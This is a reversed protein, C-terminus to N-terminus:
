QTLYGRLSQCLHKETFKAFNRVIGKKCFVHPLCSSRYPFLKNIITKLDDGQRNFPSQTHTYTHKYQLSRGVALHRHRVQPTRILSTINHTNISTNRGLEKMEM